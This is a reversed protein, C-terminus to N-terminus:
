RSVEWVTGLSQGAIESKCVELGDLDAEREGRAIEGIRAGVTRAAM